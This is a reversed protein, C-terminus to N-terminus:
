RGFPGDNPRPPRPPRSFPRAPRKPPLSRKPRPPNQPARQARTEGHALPPIPIKVEGAQERARGQEWLQRLKPNDYPNAANAERASRRGENFARHLRAKSINSPVRGSSREQGAKIM